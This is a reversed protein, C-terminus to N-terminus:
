AEGCPGDGREFEILFAYIVDFEDATKTWKGIKLPEAINELPSTLIYRAAFEIQFHIFSRNPGNSRGPNSFSITLTDVSLLPSSSSHLFWPFHIFKWGNHPLFHVTFCFDQHCTLRPERLQTLVRYKRSMVSRATEDQIPRLISGFETQSILWLSRKM